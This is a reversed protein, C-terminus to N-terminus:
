LGMCVILFVSIAGWINLVSIIRRQNKLLGSAKSCFYHCVGFLIVFRFFEHLFFMKSRQPPSMLGYHIFTYCSHTLCLLLIQFRM